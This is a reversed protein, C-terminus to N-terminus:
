ESLLTLESTLATLQTNIEAVQANLSSLTDMAPSNKANEEIISIELNYKNYELNRIHSNIINIKEENSLLTM